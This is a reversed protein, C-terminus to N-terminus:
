KNKCYKKFLIIGVVIIAIGIFVSIVSSLVPPIVMGGMGVNSFQSAATFATICGIVRMVTTYIGFIILLICFVKSHKKIFSIIKDPLEDIADLYRDLFSGKYQPEEAQAKYETENEDLLFDVTVGFLEALSKLKTVEPLADGTEWKSVAQRSVGIKESLAEQSLGSKKRYYSIKEHLKM